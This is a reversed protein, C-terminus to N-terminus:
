ARNQGMHISEWVEASDPKPWAVKWKGTIQLRAQNSRTGRKGTYLLLMGGALAFRGVFNCAGRPGARGAARQVLGSAAWTRRGKNGVNGLTECMRAGKTIKSRRMGGQVWDDRYGTTHSLGGKAGRELQSTFPPRAPPMRGGEGGRGGAGTQTCLLRWVPVGRKEARDGNVDFLLGSCWGQRWGQQSAFPPIPTRCTGGQMGGKNMCSSYARPVLGQWHWERKHVLFPLRLLSTCCPAPDRGGRGGEGPKRASAVRLRPAHVPILAPTGRRRKGARDTCSHPAHELRSCCGLNARLPLACFRRGRGQADSVLALSSPARKTVGRGLKRALAVRVPPPM